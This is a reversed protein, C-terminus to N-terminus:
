DDKQDRQAANAIWFYGLLMAVLFIVEVVILLWIPGTWASATALMGIILLCCYAIEVMEGIIPLRALWRIM